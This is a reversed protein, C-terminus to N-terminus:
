GETTKSTIKLKEGNKKRCFKQFISGEGMLFPPELPIPITNPQFQTTNQPIPHIPHYQTKLTVQEFQSMETEINRTSKNEKELAAVLDEIGIDKTQIIM